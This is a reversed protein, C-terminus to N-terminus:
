MYESSFIIVRLHMYQFVLALCNVQTVTAIYKRLNTSTVLHPKTLGAATCVSNLVQWSDVHGRSSLNAFFYPNSTPIHSQQRKDVLEDMAQKVDPTILVPVRRNRKGALQVLDVRSCHLAAITFRVSFRFAHIKLVNDIFVIIRTHIIEIGVKSSGYITITCISLKFM